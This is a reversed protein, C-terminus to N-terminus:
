QGSTDLTKQTARRPELFRGTIYVSVLSTTLLGVLDYEEEASSPPHANDDDHAAHYALWMFLPKSNEMGDLFANTTHEELWYVARSTFMHTTYSGFHNTATQWNDVSTGDLMDYLRHSLGDFTYNHETSVHTLYNVGATLYGLFGDVGRNWPLYDHNCHGINWKGLVYTAYGVDQMYQPLIKNALPISYNSASMIEISAQLTSFGTRHVFKGSLLTTRAPTCLSQGYYNTLRVGGLAMADLNPTAFPIDSSMYGLDNYGVDDFTIMVVNPCDVCTTNSRTEEEIENSAAKLTSETQRRSLSTTTLAAGVVLLAASWRLTTYSQRPPSAPTAGYMADVLRVRPACVLRVCRAVVLWDSFLLSLPPWLVLPLSSAM